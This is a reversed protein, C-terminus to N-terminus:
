IGFHIMWKNQKWAVSILEKLELLEPIDELASIFEQTSSPPILTIGNYALGKAPVDVTHWYFDADFLSEVVKTLVDDDISVCNYKQPEYEDFREGKEPTKQMIGFEHKAM